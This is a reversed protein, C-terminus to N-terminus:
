VVAAGVHVLGGEIGVRQHVKRVGIRNGGLAKGAIAPALKSSPLEHWSSIATAPELTVFRHYSKPTVFAGAASSANVALQGSEHGCLSSRTVKAQFYCQSSQCVLM